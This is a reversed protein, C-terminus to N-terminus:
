HQMKGEHEQIDKQQDAKTREAIQRVQPNTLQPLFRDVMAIGEKHHDIVMMHFAMDFDAGAPLKALSDVMAQNGPMVSPQHSVGENQLLTLMEQQEAQQKQGMQAASAKVEASGKETAQAVMGKMGEHHDSMERLFQQDASAATVGTDTAPAGADTTAAASTDSGAAAQDSGGDSGGCAATLLVLAFAFPSGWQAARSMAM